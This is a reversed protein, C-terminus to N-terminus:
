PRRPGPQVRRAQLRRAFLSGGAAVLLLFALGALVLLPIPVSSANSPGITNAASNFLGKNPTTGTTQSSGIRTISGGSGRSSGGSGRSSGGGSSGSGSSGSTPPGNGGSPPVVFDASRSKKSNHPTSNKLTRDHQRTAALLARQIDQRASTYNKLDPSKNIEAIATKYCSAKYSGDIRGDYWDNVLKKWCPTSSAAAVPALGAGALLAAACAALLLRKVVDM